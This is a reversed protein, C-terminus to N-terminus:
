VKSSLGSMLLVSYLLGVLPKIYPHTYCRVTLCCITRPLLIYASLWILDFQFFIVM